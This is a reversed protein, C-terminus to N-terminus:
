NDTMVITENSARTGMAGWVGFPSASGPPSQTNGLYVSGAIETDSKSQISDSIFRVAGDALVCNVGGSHYSGASFVGGFWNAHIGDPPVESCSPSNPPLVTNFASFSPAADAWRVGRPELDAGGEILRSELDILNWCNQPSDRLGPVEMIVNSKFARDGNGVCIESFLLTNSLGDSCDRMRFAFWNAFLGRKSSDDFRQPQRDGSSRYQPKKLACGVAFVGDGLCAAYNTAGSNVLPEGPDSPCRLFTPSIKWPGYLNEQSASLINYWPIPGMAPFVIGSRPERWPNSITDWLPQQEIFPLLAVAVGLRHHNSSSDPSIRTGRPEATGGGHMPFQRFSSHYNQCALALDRLRSACQMKRASERVSQVASLTLAVLIGIISIVVLLEILTFASRSVHGFSFRKSM